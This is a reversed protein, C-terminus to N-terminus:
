FVLRKNAFYSLIPVSAAGVILSASRPLGAAACTWAIGSSLAFAVLSVLLFRALAANWARKSRFSFHYHGIFSVFFAVLYGQAHVATVPLELYRDALYVTGLHVLTALGGVLSFRSFGAIESRVRM